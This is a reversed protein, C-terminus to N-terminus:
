TTGQPGQKHVKDTLLQGERDTFKTLSTLGQIHVNSIGCHWLFRVSYHWSM